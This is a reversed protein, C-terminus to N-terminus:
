PQSVVRFGTFTGTSLPGDSTSRNAIKTATESSNFHGGRISMKITSGTGSVVGWTFENLNGSMDYLGASNQQKQKVPHTTSTSGGSYWAYQDLTSANTGAFENTWPASTSPVGGRAAYEWEAETPLRFGNAGPNWAANETSGNGAPVSPSSSRPSERIVKSADTFDATGNEYYVPTRGLYESYANCWVV